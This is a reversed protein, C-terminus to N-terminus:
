GRSEEAEAPLPRLTSRVTATGRFVLLKIAGESKGMIHGIEALPLDESYKLTMATRQQAPLRDIAQWIQDLELREAVQDDVAAGDSALEPGSELSDEGRKRSRYHDTITNIAIQYLWASFPHGSPRYRGLARLAKFFVESTIDEALEASRVRSAVYRYIQPFYHDYLEGFAEPEAQARAILRQEHDPPLKM